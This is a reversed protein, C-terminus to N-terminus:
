DGPLRDPTSGHNSKQPQGTSTWDDDDFPDTRSEREKRVRVMDQQFRVGELFAELEEMTKCNRSFMKDKTIVGCCNEYRWDIKFGLKRALEIALEVRRHIDKADKTNM